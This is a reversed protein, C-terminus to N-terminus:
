HWTLAQPHTEKEKKRKRRAVEKNVMKKRAKRKKEEEIRCLNTFLACAPTHCLNCYVPKRWNIKYFDRLWFMFIEYAPHVITAERTIGNDEPVIRELGEDSSPSEDREVM